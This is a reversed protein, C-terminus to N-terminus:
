LSAPLAPRYGFRAAMELEDERALRELGERYLRRRRRWAYVIVPGGLLLPLSGSGIAPYWVFRGFLGSRWQSDLEALPEGYARAFADEFGLGARMEALLAPFDQEEPDHYRLFTAFDRAAAYAVAVERGDGRFSRELSELDPVGAGFIAQALTEARLLDIEGAVSDAVGEHFWRPVDAGETARHLAVHAMEHRLLDRLDSKSGDPAHEAIAIEGRPPHAVGAVWAPMDTARAVGGANRVFHIQLEDEVDVGLENEISEWWGPIERALREADRRLAPDYHLEVRGVGITETAEELSWGVPKGNEARVGTSMLTAAAFVLCALLYRLRFV